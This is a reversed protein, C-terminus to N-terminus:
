LTQGHGFAKSHVASRQSNADYNTSWVSYTSNTNESKKSAILAAAPSKSKKAQKTSHTRKTGGVPPPLPYFQVTRQLVPMNTTHDDKILKLRQEFDDLENCVQRGQEGSHGVNIDEEQEELHIRLADLADISDDTRESAAGTALEWDCGLGGRVYWHDDDVGEGRGTYWHDNDVREELPSLKELEAM